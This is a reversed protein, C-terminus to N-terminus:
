LILGRHQFKEDGLRWLQVMGFFGTKQGIKAM